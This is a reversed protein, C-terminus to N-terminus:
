YPKKAVGTPIGKLINLKRRAEINIKDFVMDYLVFRYVIQNSNCGRVEFLLQM